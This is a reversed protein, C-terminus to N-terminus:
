RRRDRNSDRGKRRPFRRLHHFYAEQESAGPLLASCRDSGSGGVRWGRTSRVRKPITVGFHFVLRDEPAPVHKRSLSQGPGTGRARVPTMVRTGLLAKIRPFMDM